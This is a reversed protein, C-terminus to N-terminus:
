CLQAATSLTFEVKGRVRLCPAECLEFYGFRFDLIGIAGHSRAKM